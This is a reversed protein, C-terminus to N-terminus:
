ESQQGPNLMPWLENARAEPSKYGGTKGDAFSVEGGKAPFSSQSRATEAAKRDMDRFGKRMTELRQRVMNPYEANLDNGEHSYYVDQLYENVWPEDPLQHDDRLKTFRQSLEAEAKASTHQGLGEKVTKYEKYLHALAQDRQHVAQSLPNIGEQMIREVLTAATPGDLYQMERLQTLLENTPNPQAAAQQRQQLQQQQLQQQQLQQQQSYWKQRGEEFSRREDALSQSKKTFEAQVDKPWSGTSAEGSDPSSEVPHDGSPAEDQVVDTSEFESM